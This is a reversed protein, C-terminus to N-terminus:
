NGSHFRDQPRLILRLQGRIINESTLDSKTKRGVALPIAHVVLEHMMVESRDVRVEGGDALRFSSNGSVLVLIPHKSNIDWDGTSEDMQAITVGGGYKNSISERKGTHTTFMRYDVQITRIDSSIASNILQSFHKSGEENIEGTKYLKNNEDLAYQDYSMYNIGKVLDPDLFELDRGDPDTYKVPNNGSWFIFIVVRCGRMSADMTVAMARFGLRNGWTFAPKPPYNILEQV